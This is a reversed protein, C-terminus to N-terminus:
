VDPIIDFCFNYIPLMAFPVSFERGFANRKQRRLIRIDTQCAWPFAGVM